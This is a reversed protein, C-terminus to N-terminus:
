AHVESWVGPTAADDDKLAAEGAGHVSAHLLSIQQGVFHNGSWVNWM